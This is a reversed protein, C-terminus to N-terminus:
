KKKGREQQILEVEMNAMRKMLGDVTRSLTKLSATTDEQIDFMKDMNASMKALIAMTDDDPKTM